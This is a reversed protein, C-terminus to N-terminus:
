RTRASPPLIRITVGQDIRLRETAVREPPRAFVRNLMVRTVVYWGVVRWIISDGFLAEHLTTQEIGPAFLRVKRRRAIRRMLSLRRYAVM